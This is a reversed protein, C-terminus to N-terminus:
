ALAAGEKAAARVTSPKLGVLQESLEWLKIGKAGDQVEESPTNVFGGDRSTESWSWYAGSQKYKDDSVVLALRKGADEESVFGQTVFQQFPPFLKQFEVRHNRFLGTTAICGPYLSSFTIGTDKFRRHLERVTLMNCVKSDKYAKVGDFEGGDAMTIPERFGAEMGQLNGLDAQPPIRGALTNRNGTISGVIILRADGTRAQTEKLDDLFLNSMLFHGLHNTAMSLEFGEGTFQPKWRPEGWPLYIAANCVLADLPRGLSHFTDVFRRVSELSAVDCHLITYSGKPMGMRKAAREAKTFDRVAM